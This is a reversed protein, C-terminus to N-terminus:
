HLMQKRQVKNLTTSRDDDFANADSAWFPFYFYHMSIPVVEIHLYSHGCGVFVVFFEKRTLLALM